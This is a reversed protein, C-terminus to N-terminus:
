LLPSFLAAIHEAYKRTIPRNDWAAPDVQNSQALYGQQAFRLRSTVEPGYLLVSLEFNLNFSRIDLNSSGLLGFADDVTITKAHLMGGHYLHINVNNDMLTQFYSRGAANVLPHDSKEPIVVDVKVDRDAAMSLALITPEDPVLYPTTMIIRKQASNLAALLVRRFTEAEHNPGTPVVQAAIDGEAKLPPFLDDSDLHQETEFAWDDLFVLQLQAVIPGTFRASLDIWKGARKHGYDEVVINHSGTYAVCGDVVALKRHNRLDIRALKRRWPKVPLAGQVHVGAQKLQDAIGSRFFSRSGAHDVMLRCAVGRAAARQLAEAVRVGMEDPWFIYYLLHVHHRAHDIEHILSDILQPNTSLLEIENGGIISNGSIQEAQLIMNRQEPEIPPRIIHSQLMEIRTPLRSRGVIAGHSRMRERGLYNVGILLYILMGLWPLFFILMLWAMATSTEFRRRLIVPVMGLRIAWELLIILFAMSIHISPM